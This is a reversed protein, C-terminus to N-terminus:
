IIEIEEDDDNVTFMNGILHNNKDISDKGISRMGNTLRQDVLHCGDPLWTYSGSPKEVIQAKEDTYTTPVYRDKRIFNNIKWHKILIVGSDFRMLYKRDILAELDQAGAHAKFMALSVQSCFGDDDASLCLHM